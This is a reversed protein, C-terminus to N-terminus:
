FRLISFSAWISWSINVLFWNLNISKPWLNSLLIILSACQNENFFIYINTNAMHRYIYSMSSQYERCHVKHLLNVNIVHSGYCWESMFLSLDIKFQSFSGASVSLHSSAFVCLSVSLHKIICLSQVNHPRDCTLEENSGNWEKGQSRQRWVFFQHLLWNVM